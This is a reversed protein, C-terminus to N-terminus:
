AENGLLGTRQLRATLSTNLRWKVRGLLTVFLTTCATARVDLITPRPLPVIVSVRQQSEAQTANLM